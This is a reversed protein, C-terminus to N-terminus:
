SYFRSRVIQEGRQQPDGNAMHWLELKVQIAGVWDEVEIASRLNEYMEDDSTEDSSYDIGDRNKAKANGFRKTLAKVRDRTKDSKNRAMLSQIDEKIDVLVVLRVRGQSKTLWQLADSRLDAYSETFGVEVIVSPLLASGIAGFTIAADPFKTWAHLKKTNLEPDHLKGALRESDISLHIYEGEEETMFGTKGATRLFIDLCPFIASHVPRSMSYVKLIHTERDYAFRRKQKKLSRLVEEISEHVFITWPIQLRLDYDPYELDLYSLIRHKADGISEVVIIPQSSDAYQLSDAPRSSDPHKIQATRPSPKQSIFKQGKHARNTAIAAPFPM